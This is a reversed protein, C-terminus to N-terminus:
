VPVVSGRAPMANVAAQRAAELVKIKEGWQEVRRWISTDSCVIVGIQELIQEAVEATVYGCLWM